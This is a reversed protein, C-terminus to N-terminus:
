FSKCMLPFWFLIFLCSESFFVTITFSVISLPNIELIYLFSMCSLILFFLGILFCASCRFLYKELYSMCIALLCMFFSLCWKNNSFHFDFSDTIM